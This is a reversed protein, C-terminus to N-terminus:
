PKERKPDEKEKMGAYQTEEEEREALKEYDSPVIHMPSSSAITNKEEEKKRQKGRRRRDVLRSMKM